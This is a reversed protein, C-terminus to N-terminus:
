CKTFSATLGGQLQPVDATVVYDQAVIQQGAAYSLVLRWYGAANPRLRVSYYGPAGSIEHFYVSGSTVLNDSIPAGNTLTWPQLVNNFFLTSTIDLLTLGARRTFVDPDLFDAQEYVTENIRVLRGRTVLSM